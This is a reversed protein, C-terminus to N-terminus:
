HAFDFVESFGVFLSMLLFTNIPLQNEAFAITVIALILRKGDNMLLSTLPSIAKLAIGILKMLILSPILAGTFPVVIM